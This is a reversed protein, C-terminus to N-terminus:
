NVTLTVDDIVFSTQLSYDEIGTFRLTLTQGAYGALNFTRATYGAGPNLNSWTALTTTGSGTVADLTLTDYAVPQTEATDIHLYFTLTATACGSPIVVQQSLTETTAYGYGDLWAKWTGTRAPELGSNSVVAPSATWPSATGTEFGGNGILQAATCGTGGGGTPPLRYAEAAAASWSFEGGDSFYYYNAGNPLMAVTIGGYGSMFPVYTPSTYVANDASTFRRAWIGDQYQYTIGAGDATTTTGRNAPNRQMADVLMSASLTQTGAIMGNDSNLFRSVKAIDDQTYFLGYGGFPSGTASNDTRVTTLVDPSLKLPVLVQDRLWTYIDSGLYNRMARALIFSDSSHYVWQTGPSAAHPFALAANMKATYTEADFFTGMQTGGEDTEFGSSTYNGTAMNATHQFTVGNWATGAEAVYTRILLGPVSTGYVQALRMFAVGHFMTKALSYSPMVMQNCYPYAGQRTQCAAVYNVGNYYVGYTSMATATIGSGFKSTDVGATPYDTALATIAKTPLRAAVEAAYAEKLTDAGTVAGRTYTVGVQGWMDFQFYACTENTIQYRAQSVTTADFLFTLLGNHTCNANREVLAFPLSVRTKGGDGNENWARGGEVILNWYASGTIQLGRVAPVIHSGNQVLAVSFPPLHKRAATAAYGYDDKITTFSGATAVGNLTLTGEFTNSPPAAGTPLAFASNAVTAAATGSTLDTSTLVTRTVAGSGTLPDGPVPNAAAARTSPLIITALVVAAALTARPGRLQAPM